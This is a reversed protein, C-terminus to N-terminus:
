RSAVEVIILQKSLNYSFFGNKPADCLFFVPQVEGLMMPVIVPVM